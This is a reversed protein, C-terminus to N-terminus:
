PSANTIAYIQSLVLGTSTTGDFAIMLDLALFMTFGVVGTLKLQPGAFITLPPQGEPVRYGDGTQGELDTDVASLAVFVQNRTM